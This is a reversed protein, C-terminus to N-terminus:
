IIKRFEFNVKKNEFLTEIKHIDNRCEIVTFIYEIPIDEYDEATNIVTIKYRRENLWKIKSVIKENGNFYEIQKDSTRVIKFGINEPETSVFTGERLGTLCKNKQAFFNLSILLCCLICLAKKM